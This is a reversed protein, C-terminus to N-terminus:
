SMRKLPQTFIIHVDSIVKERFGGECYCFYFMWLREFPEDFGLGHIHEINNQFNNRWAKLTKAYSDGLDELSKVRFGSKAASTALTTLSPIFSGPFIFKKIFDVERLARQYRRDDITIAQMLFRGGPKLLQGLKAFYGDLYQHGVAEVMEISVIKDYSGELLRYDQKLLTIKDELKEQAIRSKAENYQADSITTTTVKCGYHKAAYIALGGWGSGVELLHDQENLQLKDCVSRLKNASAQELDTTNEDYLASSYMMKSDLFLKYFDNSLDYHALINRKSGTISNRNMWHMLKNQIRSWLSSREDVTDFTSQNAAMVRIVNVLDPSKWHGDIYGQAAGNGGQRIIQRYVDPNVIHIEANLAHQEDNLHEAAKGFEYTEEGDIIRLTGVKIRNAVTLLLRKYASNSQNGINWPLAELAMTNKEEHHNSARVARNPHKYFPVRKFWLRLAEWYISAIVKLPMFAFHFPMKAAAHRTLPIFKLNLDADFELRHNRYLQMVIAIQDGDVDFQWRYHVDMPMFPSIHFVKEFEFVFPQKDALSKACDHVYVHREGWPTNTIESLIAFCQSDDRFCFYFSVPNFSKGWQRLHTLLMIRHPKELIAASELHHNVAERLSQDLPRLYDSRRFEVLNFKKTSWFPFEDIASLEDIDLWSYYLKYNFWHKKPYHRRHRVRGVALRSHNIMSM